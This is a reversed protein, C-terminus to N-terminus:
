NNSIPLGPLFVIKNDDKVMISNESHVWMIAKIDNDTYGNRKNKMRCSMEAMELSEIITPYEPIAFGPLMIWAILYHGYTLSDLSRHKVAAIAHIVGSTILKPYVAFVPKNNIIKPYALRAFEGNKHRM